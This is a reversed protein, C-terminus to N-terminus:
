PRNAQRQPAQRQPPRPRHTRSQPAGNAPEDQPEASPKRPSRKAALAALREQATLDVEDM